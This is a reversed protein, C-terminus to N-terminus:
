IEKYLLKNKMSIMEFINYMVFSSFIKIVIIIKKQILKKSPDTPYIFRLWIYDFLNDIENTLIIRDIM